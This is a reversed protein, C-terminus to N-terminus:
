RIIELYQSYIINLIRRINTPLKFDAKKKLIFIIEDRTEVFM